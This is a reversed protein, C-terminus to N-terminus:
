NGIERPKVLGRWNWMRSNAWDTPWGEDPSNSELVGIAATPMEIATQSMKSALVEMGPNHGLMMVSRKSAISALGSALALILGDPALYLSEEIIVEPLAIASNAKSSATWVQLMLELTQQTRVAGSCVVIDPMLSNAVVWNAMIPASARGRDNLPREKDTLGADNWDSKAHRM